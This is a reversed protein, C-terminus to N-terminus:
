GKKAENKTLTGNAAQTTFLGAVVGAAGCAAMILPLM